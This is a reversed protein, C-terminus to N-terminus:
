AHNPITSAPGAHSGGEHERRKLFCEVALREEDKGEDVEERDEEVPLENWLRLPLRQFFKFFM